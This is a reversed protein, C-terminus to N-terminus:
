KQVYQNADRLGAPTGTDFYRGGAFTIVKIPNVKTYEGLINTFAPNTASLNTLLPVTSVKFKGFAWVWPSTPNGPKEVITTAYGGSINVSGYLEPTTSPLVGLVLDVAVGFISRYGTEPYWVTDPLGFYLEDSPNLSVAPSVIGDFLGRRPGIQLTLLKAHPSSYRLYNILDTKDPALTVFICRIGASVLRDLVYEIVPIGAVKALEKSHTLGSRIGLGGAPVVGYRM